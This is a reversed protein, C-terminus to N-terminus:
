ELKVSEGYLRDHRRKLLCLESQLSLIQKQRKEIFEQVQFPSLDLRSSVPFYKQWSERSDKISSVMKERKQISTQVIGIISIIDKCFYHGVRQAPSQKPYFLDIEKRLENTLKKVNDLSSYNIYKMQLNNSGDAAVSNDM